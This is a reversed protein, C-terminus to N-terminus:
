RVECETLLGVTSHQRRNAWRFSDVARAVDPQNIDHFVILAGPNVRALAATVDDRVSAYDHLGDVFVMDFPGHAEEVTSVIIGNEPMKVSQQVWPEPDVSVIFKATVAMAVTSVGLGTGIELVRKGTAIEALILAEQNTVSMRAGPDPDDRGQYQGGFGPVPLPTLAPCREIIVAVLEQETM